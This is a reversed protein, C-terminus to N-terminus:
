PTVVVASVPVLAIGKAALAPLWAALAEITKDHPHGIAIASGHARARAELKALQADIAARDDVHDLFLDRAVAPVGEARAMALGTSKGTTMSDVFLLDRKKLEEMVIRMGPGDATFRSGMHNNVGVYGSFRALDAEVRRRLEAAPLQDSLADPGADHSASLPQMPMHMMLEHGHARAAAAQEALRPAYTMYSITLPGPLAVVRDSRKRDLGMDDIIVVVMPRAARVPVAFRKWAPLAPPPPPAVDTPAATEPPIPPPPEPAPAAEAAATETQVPSSPSPPAAPPPAPQHRLFHAAVVSLIVGATLSLLSAAVVGRHRQLGEVILKASVV